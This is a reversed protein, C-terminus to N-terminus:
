KHRTDQHIWVRNSDNGQLKSNHHMRCFFAAKPGLNRRQRAANRLAFRERFRQHVDSLRGFSPQYNGALARCSAGVGLERLDLQSFQKPSADTCFGPPARTAVVAFEHTAGCRHVVRSGLLVSPARERFDLGSVRFVEVISSPRLALRPHDRVRAPVQCIRTCSYAMNM